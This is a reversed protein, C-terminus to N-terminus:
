QRITRYTLMQNWLRSLTTSEDAPAESPQCPIDFQVVTGEGPHSTLHISGGMLQVLARALTLGQGIGVRTSGLKEFRQFARECDEPRLGIGTDSIHFCLRDDRVEYGVEVTGADTFKIANGILQHLVVSLQRYDVMARYGRQPVKKVVQVQPKDANRAECVCDEVLGNIDVQRPHLQIDGAEIKSLEQMDEIEALLTECNSSILRAIDNRETDNHSDVLLSAFGAVTNIPARLEHTINRLFEEKQHQMNGVKQRAVQLQNDIDQIISQQAVMCTVDWASTAIWVPHGETDRVLVKRIDLSVEKDPPLEMSVVKNCSGRRLTDRDAGLIADQSQVSMRKTATAFDEKSSVGLLQLMQKNVMVYRQTNHADKLAFAVPLDDLVTELLFTDRRLLALDCPQISQMDIIFCLTNPGYWLIFVRNRGLSNLFTLDLERRERSKRVDEVTQRLVRRSNEDVWGYINKEAAYMRTVIAKDQNRQANRYSLVTGDTRIIFIPSNVCEQMDLRSMRLSSIRRM